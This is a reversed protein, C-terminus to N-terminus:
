SILKEVAEMVREVSISDIAAKYNVEEGAKKFVFSSPNIGDSPLVLLSREDHPPQERPDVPGVIDILPTKLAHAVYIPGTDVAIYLKLHKILSPLEELSFDTAKFYSVKPLNELLSAIRANDNKGGIFVIKATYKAVIRKALEIFKGDGWEKIKNGATISMGVLMDFESIQHIKLFQGIKKEGEPAVFVEKVEEPNSIGLVSLMKLYHGPLYTHHAYFFQYNNLWDTLWESVPRGSRTLKVRNPIMGWWAMLNGISSGSLCFSWNLQLFRIRRIADLFNAYGYLIVEDIHPNNKLIGAAKKHVVVAIFSEPYQKKIARFVPTACVVDGIRTFQPIM